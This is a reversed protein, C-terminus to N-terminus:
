CVLKVVPLIERSARVPDLRPWSPHHMVSWREGSPFTMHSIHVILYQLIHNIPILEESPVSHVVHRSEVAKARMSLVKKLKLM